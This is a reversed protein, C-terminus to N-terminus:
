TEEDDYNTAVYAAMMAFNAIDAAEAWVANVREHSPGNARIDDIAEELEYLESAARRTLYDPMEHEWGGKHQNQM